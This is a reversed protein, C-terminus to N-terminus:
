PVGPRPQFFRGVGAHGERIMVETELRISVVRFLLTYEPPHGAVLQQAQQSTGARRDDGIAALAPMDHDHQAPPPGKDRSAAALKARARQM